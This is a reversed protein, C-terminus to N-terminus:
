VQKSRRHRISQVAQSIILIMVMIIIAASSFNSFSFPM